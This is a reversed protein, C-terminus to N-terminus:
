VGWDSSLQEIPDGVAAIALAVAEGSHDARIERLIGNTQSLLINQRTIEATLRQLEFVLGEVEITIPINMM